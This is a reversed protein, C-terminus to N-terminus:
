PHRLRPVGYFSRWSDAEAEVLNEDIVEALFKGFYPRDEPELEGIDTLAKELAADNDMTEEVRERVGDAWLDEWTHPSTTIAERAAALREERVRGHAREYLRVQYEDRDSFGTEEARVPEPPSVTNAPDHDHGRRPHLFHQLMERFGHGPEHLSSRKRGMRLGLLAGEAAAFGAVRVAAFLPITGHVVRGM